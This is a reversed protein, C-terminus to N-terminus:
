TLYNNGLKLGLSSDRRNITVSFNDLTVHHMEIPICRDIHDNICKMVVDLFDYEGIKLICTKLVKSDELGREELIFFERFDM